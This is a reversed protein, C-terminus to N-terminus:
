SRVRFVGSGGCLRLFRLPLASLKAVFERFLYKSFKMFSYDEHDHSQLFFSGSLNVSERRSM